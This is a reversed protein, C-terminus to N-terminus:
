ILYPIIIERILNRDHHWRHHQVFPKAIIELKGREALTRLGIKDKRYIVRKNLEVVDLSSNFYAFHSFFLLDKM